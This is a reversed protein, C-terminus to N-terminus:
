HITPAVTVVVAGEAVAVAVVVWYTLPSANDM